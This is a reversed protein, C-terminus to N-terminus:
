LGINYRKFEKKRNVVHPCDEWGERCCEPILFSPLVQIEVPAAQQEDQEEDIM